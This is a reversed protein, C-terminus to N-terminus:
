INFVEHNRYTLSTAYYKVLIKKIMDSEINFLIDFNFSQKTMKYLTFQDRNELDTNVVTEKKYENYSSLYTPIKEHYMVYPYSSNIDISFCPEDIIQGIYKPNYMNLGGRYFGKIYDYLNLDHFKYDTYSIKDDGIQNLLQFSTLDNNMYSELINVSFTMKSYDFGPFIDSYHIHCQGLIIVDNHIYTMQDNDLRNFCEHAYAYSIINFILKLSIM